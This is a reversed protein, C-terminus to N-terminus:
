GTSQFACPVRFSEQLQAPSPYVEIEKLGFVAAAGKGPPACGELSRQNLKLISYLKRIMKGNIEEQVLGPSTINNM